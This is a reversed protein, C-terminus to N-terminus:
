GKARGRPSSARLAQSPLLLFSLLLGEPPMQRWSGKCLPAMFRELCSNINYPRIGVDARM